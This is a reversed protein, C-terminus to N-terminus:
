EHTRETPTRDWEPDQPDTYWPDTRYPASLIEDENGTVLAAMNFLSETDPDFYSVHDTTLAEIDDRHRDVFESEFRQAGFDDEAPDNGLGLGGLNEPNVWGHSGLWSVTDTSAAGVWVNEAGIGFDSAHDNGGGAGPSGVLAIADVDLGPGSAALSTTTSGYSHGIVTLNPQDAGRSVQFGAVDEALLAGGARARTDAVVTVSDIDSPADYGIWAVCATSEDSAAYQSERYLNLAMTTNTGMSGSVTTTLGPVTFAVNDATTLDGVALIARGDGGFRYPEYDYLQAVLPLGTRRDRTGEIVAIQEAVARANALARREEVTLAFIEERAELTAIDRDVMTRNATDRADAPVGDLHGIIQPYQVLLADREADTLSEWWEAAREPPLDALEEATCGAKDLATGLAPDDGGAAALAEKATSLGRNATLAACLRQEAAEAQSIVTSTASTLTGIDRGLSAARSRLPAAEAPEADPPLARVAARLQGISAVIGTHTELLDDARGQLNELSAAYDDVATAATRLAVSAARLDTGTYGVRTAYARAADGSWGGDAGVLEVAPGAVWDAREDLLGAERRLGDAWARAAGPSGSPREPAAPPLPVAVANM